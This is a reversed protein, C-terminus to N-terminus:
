SVGIIEIIKSIDIPKEFFYAGLEQARKRITISYEVASFVIVPIDKDFNRLATLVEIGNIVAGFDVDIILCDYKHKHLKKLAELGTLATDVNFYNSLLVRMSQLIDTENDAILIHKV